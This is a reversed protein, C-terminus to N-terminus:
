QVVFSLDDLAFDNGFSDTNLDIISLTATTSAGSFWSTTFPQWQCTNSSLQLEGIPANNVLFQLHAPSTPFVSTAWGSFDYTRNPLVTVTESWVIVNPQVAGNVIMMNGTGTTHDGCPSFLSNDAQPNTAVDYAGEPFLNGPSFTYGTSFGTNGLEFDGNVILSQGTTPFVQVINAVSVNLNPDFTLTGQCRRSGPQDRSYVLEISTQDMDLVTAGFSPNDYTDPDTNFAASAFQNFHTFSLVVPGNGAEDPPYDVTLTGSAPAVTAFVSSHLLSQGGLARFSDIMLVDLRDDIVNFVGFRINFSTAPGPVVVVACLNPDTLMGSAMMQDFVRGMEEARPTVASVQKNPDAASIAEQAPILQTVSLVSLLIFFLARKM